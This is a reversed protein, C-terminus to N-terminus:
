CEPPAPPPPTLVSLIHRADKQAQQRGMVM